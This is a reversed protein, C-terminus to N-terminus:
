ASFLNRTLARRYSWLAAGLIVLSIAAWVVAWMVAPIGTQSQMILADSHTSTLASLWILTKLDFLANLCCQVALFSLLFHAARPQLYKASVFLAIALSLNAVWTFLNGTISLLSLLIFFLIGAGAALGIKAPNSLTPKTYWFIGIGAMAILIIFALYGISTFMLTSFLGLSIAALIKKAMSGRHCLLLLMAGFITSGLYGASALVFTWGGLAYTVGSGDPNINMGRVSGFTLLTAIAHGTEHVFTVFLRFPYTALEAYPILGIGLTIVTALLLLKFADKSERM